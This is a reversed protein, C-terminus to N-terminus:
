SKSQSNIKPHQMCAHYTIINKSQIMQIDQYIIMVGAKQHIHDPKINHLKLFDYILLNRSIVQIKKM